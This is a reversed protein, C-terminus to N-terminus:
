VVGILSRVLGDNLCAWCTLFRQKWVGSGGEGDLITVEGTLSDEGKLNGSRSLLSEKNPSLKADERSWLETLLLSERPIDEKFTLSASEESVALYYHQGNSPLVLVLKM